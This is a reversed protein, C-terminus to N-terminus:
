GAQARHRESPVASATQRRPLPSSARVPAGEADWSSGGVVYVSPLWPSPQASCASQRIARVNLLVLGEGVRLVVREGEVDDVLGRLGMGAQRM